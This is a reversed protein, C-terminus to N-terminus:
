LGLVTVIGSVVSKGGFSATVTCTGLGGAIFRGPIGTHMTGTGTDYVVGWDAMSTVTQNSGDSYNAILVFDYVDGSKVSVAGNPSLTLSNLSITSGDSGGLQEQNNQTPQADGSVTIEWYIGIDKMWEVGEVVPTFYAKYTGPTSPAKINFQFRTHWGPKIVSHLINATRNTSLWDDNAFESIYDRQQNASGYRSGAGLRVVNEIGDGHWTVTGTNKVEIWVNTSTGPAMVSPYSSQDILEYDFPVWAAKVNSVGSFGLLITLIGLFSLAKKM